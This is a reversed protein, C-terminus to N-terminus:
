ICVWGLVCVSVGVCGRVCVCVCIAGGSDMSDMGGSDMGGSSQKLALSPLTRAHCHTGGQASIRFFNAGKTSTYLAGSTLVKSFTHRSRPSAARATPMPARVRLTSQERQQHLCENTLIWHASDLACICLGYVSKKSNPVASNRQGLRTRGCRAICGDSRRGMRDRHVAGASKTADGREQRRRGDRRTRPRARRGKFLM